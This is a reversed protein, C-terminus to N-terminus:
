MLLVIEDQEIDSETKKGRKQQQQDAHFRTKTDLSHLHEASAPQLLLPV